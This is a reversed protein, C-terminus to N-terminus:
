TSAAGTSNRNASPGFGRKLPVGIMNWPGALAWVIVAGAAIAAGALCVARVVRASRRRPQPPNERFAAVAGIAVLLAVIAGPFFEDEAHDFRSLPAWARAEAGVAVLSTVDASFAEIEEFRRHLSLSNQWDYYGWAFPALALLALATAAAIAVADRGSRCFWAVFLLVLVPFILLLYGNSLAQIVFSAAFVVLWIPRRTAIYRHLALLALPVGFMWLVQIHAVHAMRYASFAVAFGAVYGADHRGTVVVVLAHAALGTLVFAALFATNHSTVASVGLWQLPTTLLSIGVLHESLSLAGPMPWFFPANWWRDTLPVAHANWWLIWTTLVPDYPDHPLTSRLRAAVPWTIAVSVGAYVACALL